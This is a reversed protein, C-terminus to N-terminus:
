LNIFVTKVGEVKASVISKGGNIKVRILAIGNYMQVYRSGTSTGMNDVLEGEGTLGFRVWNTGDLCQINKDDLLKVQIN